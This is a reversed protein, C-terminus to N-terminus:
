DDVAKHEIASLTDIRDQIKTLDVHCDAQLKVKKEELAEVIKKTADANSIPVDSLDFDVEMETLPMYGFLEDGADCDSYLSVQMKNTIYKGVGISIYLKAKFSSPIKLINDAM